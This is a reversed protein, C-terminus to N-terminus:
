QVSDMLAFIVADGFLSHDEILQLDIKAGGRDITWVMGDGTLTESSGSTGTVPGLKGAIKEALPLYTVAEPAPLAVVCLAPRTSLLTKNAPVVTLTVDTTGDLLIPEQDLRNFGRDIGLAIASEFDPLAPACIETVMTTAIRDVDPSQATAPGGAIAVAAAALAIAAAQM